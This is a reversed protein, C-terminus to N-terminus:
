SHPRAPDPEPKRWTELFVAWFSAADPDTADNKLSRVRAIFKKENTLERIADKNVQASGRSVLDGMGGFGMSHSWTIHFADMALHAVFDDNALLKIAKPRVEKVGKPALRVWEYLMSVLKRQQALTGDKAARRIRRLAEKILGDATKADVYREDEPTFRQHQAPHHEGHCREAFSCLWHLSASRM